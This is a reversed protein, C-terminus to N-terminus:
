WVGRYGDQVIKKQIRFGGQKRKKGKKEKNKGRGKNGLDGNFSQRLATVTVYRLCLFSLIDAHRHFKDGNYHLLKFKGNCIHKKRDKFFCM